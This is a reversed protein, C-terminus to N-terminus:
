RSRKWKGRDYEDHTLVHRLYVKGRNYHIAAILRFKNGGIDFVTLPEVYDASGFTRRLSNFDAFVQKEMISYWARLPGEADRHVTWFQVLRHVTWFQVLIPKVIVHM